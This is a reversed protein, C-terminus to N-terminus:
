LLLDGIGPTTGRGFLRVPIIRWSTAKNPWNIVGRGAPTSTKVSSRLPPKASKSDQSDRSSKLTEHFVLCILFLTPSTELKSHISTYVYEVYFIYLCLYQTLAGVLKRSGDRTHYTLFQNLSKSFDSLSSFDWCKEWM